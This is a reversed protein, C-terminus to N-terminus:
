ERVLKISRFFALAEEGTKAEGAAEEVAKTDSELCIVNACDLVHGMEEVAAETTIAHAKVAKKVYKNAREVAKFVTPKRFETGSSALGIEVDYTRTYNSIFTNWKKAIAEGLFHEEEFTPKVNPIDGYVEFTFAPKTVTTTAEAMPAKASGNDPRSAMALEQAHTATAVLAFAAAIILKAKM